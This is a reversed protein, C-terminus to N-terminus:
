GNPGHQDDLDEASPAEARQGAQSWADLGHKAARKNRIERQRRVLRVVTFAVMAVVFAAILGLIAFTVTGAAAAQGNPNQPDEIM